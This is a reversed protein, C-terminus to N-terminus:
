MQYEKRHRMYVTSDSSPNHRTSAGGPRKPIDRPCRFGRPKPIQRTREAVVTRRCLLIYSLTDPNELKRFVGSRNLPMYCTTIIIHDVKTTEQINLSSNIKNQCLWM